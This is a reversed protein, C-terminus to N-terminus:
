GTARKLDVVFLVAGTPAGTPSGGVPEDSLALQSAALLARRQADTLARQASGDRPMLGLSVPAAGGPQLAWLEYDRASPVVGRVARLSLSAAERPASIEWLTQGSTDRVVATYAPAAIQPLRVVLLTLAVGLVLAAVLSWRRPGIRGRSARPQVRALIAPLTADSPRVPPVDAALGALREEWQLWARRASLDQRLLSEFRRRARVPLTGLVYAGAVYDLAKGALKM